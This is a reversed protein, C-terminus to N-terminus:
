FTVANKRQREAQSNRKMLEIFESFIKEFFDRKLQPGTGIGSCEDTHAFVYRSNGMNKLQLPYFRCILPRMQYISCSNGKLFVCKGNETKRMRYIYPEFGEIKEAFEDLETLTKKSIRDIEIKLLLISRVRDTTDRCCLACRECSFRVHKPYEFSM